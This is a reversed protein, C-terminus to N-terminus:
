IHILSLKQIEEMTKLNYTDVALERLLKNVVDATINRTLGKKNHYISLPQDRCSSGQLQIFRNLINHWKRVPCLYPAKDNRACWRDIDQNGNKQWRFHVKIYKTLVPLKMATKFNLEVKGTGYLKIDNFIFAYVDNFLNLYVRTLIGSGASQSWEIQRWGFVLALLFWDCCASEKSHKAQLQTQQHLKRHM